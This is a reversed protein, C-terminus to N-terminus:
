WGQDDFIRGSFAEKIGQANKARADSILHSVALGLEAVNYMQAREYGEWSWFELAPAGLIPVGNGFANYAVNAWTQSAKTMKLKKELNEKQLVIELAAKDADLGMVPVKGAPSNLEKIKAEISKEAAHFPVLPAFTFVMFSIFSSLLDISMKFVRDHHTEQVWFFKLAMSDTWQGVNVQAALMAHDAVEIVELYHRAATLIFYVARAEMPDPVLSVVENCSVM